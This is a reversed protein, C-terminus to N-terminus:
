FNLGQTHEPSQADHARRLEFRVSDGAALEVAEHALTEDLPLRAPDVNGAIV